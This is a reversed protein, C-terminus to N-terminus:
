FKDGPDRKGLARVQLTCLKIKQSTLIKVRYKPNWGSIWSPGITMHSDFDDASLAM